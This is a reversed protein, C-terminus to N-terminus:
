KMNGFRRYFLPFLFHFLATFVVGGVIVGIIKAALSHESDFLWFYLFMLLTWIIGAILSGVFRPNMKKENKNFFQQALVIFVMMAAGTFVGILVSIWFHYQEEYEKLFVQRLIGMAASFLILFVLVALLQKTNIKINTNMSFM